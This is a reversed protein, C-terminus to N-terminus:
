AELPKNTTQSLIVCKGGANEIAERASKTFAHAEVTLGKVTLEEGGIVKFINLKDKTRAGAELLSAPSVTSGEAAKNLQEMKLLAYETKKHGPGMPRGRIKPIRRYLPTQGGEFGARVSRGSRSHQGRMGFGCSAGQGASIGRGKRKKNQRSGPAPKLNDVTFEIGADAAVPVEGRRKWDFLKMSLTDQSVAAKVAMQQGNFTSPMFAVAAGFLAVFLTLIIQM